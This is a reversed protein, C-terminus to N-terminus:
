RRRYALPGAANDRRHVDTVYIFMQRSAARSSVRPTADFPVPENPIGFPSRLIEVGNVYAVFQDDFGIQLNLEEIQQPDRM